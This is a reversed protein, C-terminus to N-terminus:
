PHGDGADVEVHEVKSGPKLDLVVGRTKAYRTAAGPVPIERRVAVIMKGDPVRTATFNGDADTKIQSRFVQRNVHDFNPVGLADITM